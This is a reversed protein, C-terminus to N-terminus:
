VELVARRRHNSPTSTIVAAPEVPEVSEVGGMAALENGLRRARMGLRKMQAPHSAVYGGIAAGAVVGIALMGLLSWRRSSSNGPWNPIRPLSVSNWRKSWPALDIPPMSEPLTAIRRMSADTWRKQFSRLDV